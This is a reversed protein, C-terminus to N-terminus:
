TQDEMTHRVHDLAQGFLGAVHEDDLAYYSLRGDRRARVLGRDRLVRLQHSAASQSLGLTAALDSVCLERAALAAAIRLRTPDALAGFLESAGALVGAEPLAARAARVAALDVLPEDTAVPERLQDSKRPRAM